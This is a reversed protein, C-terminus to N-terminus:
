EGGLKNLIYSNGQLGSAEYFDSPANFSDGLQKRSSPKQLLCSARKSVEAEILISLPSQIWIYTHIYPSATNAFSFSFTLISGSFSHQLCCGPQLHSLSASRTPLLILSSLVSVISFDVLWSGEDIAPVLCLEGWLVIDTLVLKIENRWKFLIVAM